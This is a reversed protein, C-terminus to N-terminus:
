NSHNENLDESKTIKRFDFWNDFLGIVSIFLTIYPNIVLTLIAVAILVKSNLFWKGIKANIVALGQMFFLPIVGIVFNVAYLRHKTFLAILLAIILSYIVYVHTQYCKLTYLEENKRAFLFYGTMICLMITAIWIGSNYNLYFERMLDTMEKFALFQQTNEQNINGFLKLAEDVSRNYVESITNYFFLQRLAIYISNILLLLMVTLDLDSEKKVMYFLLTSSLGTGVIINLTTINDIFNTLYLFGCITIWGVFFQSLKFDNELFHKGLSTVIFLTGMAPSILAILLGILAFAYFM